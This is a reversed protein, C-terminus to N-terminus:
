CVSVVTSNVNFFLGWVYIICKHLAIAISIYEFYHLHILDAMFPFICYVISTSSQLCMYVLTYLVNTGQSYINYSCFVTLLCKKPLKVIKVIKFAIDWNPLHWWLLLDFCVDSLM